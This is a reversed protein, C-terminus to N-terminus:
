DDGLVIYVLDVYGNVTFAATLSDTVSDDDTTMNLNLELDGATNDLLRVTNSSGTGSAGRIVPSAKATAAAIDAVAILNDDTGGTLTADATATTGVSYEGEWAAIANASSTTFQLYSVGGLLLINGEPLYGLVATGFGKNTSAGATVTLSIDKVPYTVRRVAPEAGAEARKTSYPLGKGM